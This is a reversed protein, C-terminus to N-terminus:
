LWIYAMALNDISHPEYRTLSTARGVLSRLADLCKLMITTASCSRITSLGFYRAPGDDQRFALPWEDDAHSTTSM